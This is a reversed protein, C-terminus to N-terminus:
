ALTHSKEPIETTFFAGTLSPSTLSLPEIGPDPLDGPTPFPSESWYEQRPFGLSLPAKHAVTQPAVFIRVCCLMCALIHMCVYVLEM